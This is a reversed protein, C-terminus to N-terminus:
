RPPELRVGRPTPGTEPRLWQTRSLIQKPKFTGLKRGTLDIRVPTPDGDVTAGWWAMVRSRPFVVEDVKRMAVPPAGVLWAGWAARWCSAAAQARIALAWDPRHLLSKGETGMMTVAQSYGLKVRAYLDADGDALARERDQQVAGAWARLRCRTRSTWSDHVDVGPWFGAETLHALLQVTPTTLWVRGDERGRRSTGIPSVVLQGLNWLHDDVLWYGPVNRDFQRRGSRALQGHAVEVSAAASLYSGNADLVCLPDEDANPKREWFWVPVQVRSTVPPPVPRWYPVRGTVKPAHTRILMDLARYTSVSDTM